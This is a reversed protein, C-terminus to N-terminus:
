SRRRGHPRTPWDAPAPPLPTVPGGPTGQGEARNDAENYRAAGLPRTTADGRADWFNSLLSVTSQRSVTSDRSVTSQHSDVTSEWAAGEV